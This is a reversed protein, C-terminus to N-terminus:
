EFGVWVAGRVGRHAAFLEYIKPIRIGIDRMSTLHAVEVELIKRHRSLYNVFKGPRLDHNHEDVFRSVYWKGSGDKRKIRLEALFGCRTIVKHERKRDEKELWKKEIYGQRNCVFTYRVIEGANNRIKKGQRAAFGKVKSYNDYFGSAEEPTSFEMQLVDEARIEENAIIPESARGDMGDTNMFSEAGDGALDYMAEEVVAEGDGEPKLLEVRIEGGMDYTDEQEGATSGEQGFWNSIRVEDWECTGQDVRSCSAM